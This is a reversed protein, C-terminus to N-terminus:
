NLDTEAQLGGPVTRQVVLYSGTPPKVEITFVGGSRLEVGSAVLDVIVRMREGRELVFDDDGDLVETRYTARPVVHPAGIYSVITGAGNPDLSIENGDAALTLTLAIGDVRVGDSSLAVVGGDLELTGRTRVIGQYVTEYVREEPTATAEPTDAPSEDGGGDCAFGALALVTAAAACIARM